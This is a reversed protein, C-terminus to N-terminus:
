RGGEIKGAFDLLRIRMADKPHLTAVFSRVLFRSAASERTLKTYGHSDDELMTNMMAEVLDLLEDGARKEPDLSGGDEDGGGWIEDLRKQGRERAKAAKNKRGTSGAEVDLYQKLKEVDLESGVVPGGAEEVAIMVGLRSKIFKGLERMLIDGMKEMDRRSKEFEAIKRKDRKADSENVGDVKELEGIRRKLEEEMEQATAIWGQERQIVKKMEEVRREADSRRKRSEEIVRLVGRVALLTNLGSEEEPLWPSELFYKESGNKLGNVKAVEIKPPTVDDRKHLMELESKLERIADEQKKILEDLTNIDREVSVHHNTQAAAATDLHTETVPYNSNIHAPQQYSLIALDQLRAITAFSLSSGYDVDAMDSTSM